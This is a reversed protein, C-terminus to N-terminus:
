DRQTKQEDDFVNANTITPGGQKSNCKKVYADQARNAVIISSEDPHRQTCEDWDASASHQGFSTSNRAYEVDAKYILVAAHLCSNATLTVDRAARTFMNKFTRHGHEPDSAARTLMKLTDSWPTGNTLPGAVLDIFTSRFDDWAKAAKEGNYNRLDKPFKLERLDKEKYHATRSPPKKGDHYYSWKTM